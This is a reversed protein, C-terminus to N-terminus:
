RALGTVQHGADLLATVIAPGTQGTGGTVFVHM